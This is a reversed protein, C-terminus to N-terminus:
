LKPTIQDAM